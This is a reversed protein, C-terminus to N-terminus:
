KERFKAALPSASGTPAQQLVKWTQQQTRSHSRYSPLSLLHLPYGRTSCGVSTGAGVGWQATHRVTSCGDTQPEEPHEPSCYNLCSASLLTSPLGCSAMGAVLPKYALPTRWSTAPELDRLRSGSSGPGSRFPEPVAGFEGRDKEGGEEGTGKAPDRSRIGGEGWSRQIAETRHWPKLSM